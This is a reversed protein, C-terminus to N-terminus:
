VVEDALSFGEEIDGRAVKEHTGINSAKDRHILPADKKLAADIGVVAPLEEYEVQILSLAEEATALDVAAVAAVPEGVYRVKDTAIVPRGSYILNLDAIDSATLVAVVGPLAEAQSAEISVVRAHPYTSRLIKGQLMGPVTLDGVFKAKGTVKDIGDVRPVNHGVYKLQRKAM